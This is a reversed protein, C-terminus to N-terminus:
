LGSEAADFDLSKASRPALAVSKELEILATQYNLVHTSPIAAQEIVLTHLTSVHVAMGVYQWKMAVTSCKIFKRRHYTSIQTPQKPAKGYGKRNSSM